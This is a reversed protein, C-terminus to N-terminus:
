LLLDLNICPGFCCLIARSRHNNNTNSSLENSFLIWLKNRKGNYNIAPLVVSMKPRSGKNHHTAPLLLHDQLCFLFLWWGAVFICACPSNIVNSLVNNFQEPWQKLLRFCWNPKQFLRITNSLSLSVSYFKYSIKISKIYFFYLLFHLLLIFNCNSFYKFFAM